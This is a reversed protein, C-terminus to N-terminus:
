KLLMIKQIAATGESKLQVLYIGSALDVADWTLQYSGSGRWGKELTQVKRGTIDFVALEVQGAHVLTWSLTTTPNFPNPYAPKLEFTAPRVYDDKIATADQIDDDYAVLMQFADSYVGGVGMFLWTTGVTLGTVDVGTSEWIRILTTDTNDAIEINQGGGASWTDVITGTLEMFTGEYEEWSNAQAATLGLAAPLENGTSLVQYSFDEMEWSSNYYELSGVAKIEDGRNLDFEEYHFLIMGRGSADQIYAKTVGPQLLDGGMTIIGEVTVVQGAAANSRVDAISTATPAAVAVNQVGSYVTDNESSVAQIRYQLLTNAAQAGIVGVWSNGTDLGMPSVNLLTGDTGYLINVESITQTDSGPIVDTMVIIEDLSTVFEPSHTTNEFSPNDTVFDSLLRPLIQYDANYQTVIGIVDAPWTPESSGDIETEKDIRMIGSSTGDTITLNANSGSSPWADGTRENSVSNIRILEGEYSEGNSNLDAVSILQPELTNGSTGKVIDDATGPIIEMKGAYEDITGSVTIEDGINLDVVEGSLYLDIGATADEFTYESGSGSFNVSNVIGTVTVPTGTSQARAEAITMTESVLVSVQVDDTDTDGDDDTVTLTFVWSTSETVSPAVFSASESSANSITVAPGSTLEWLYSTITGDIDTSGSGDLIVTDGSKVYQNDGADANPAYNDVPTFSQNTNLAGPSFATFEWPSGDLGMRSISSDMSAFETGGMEMANGDNDDMSGEYSVADVISGGIKLVVADPSGNQIINTTPWGGPTLDVNTVTAAGVVFFGYGGSEDTLTINGLDATQYTGGDNGNILEVTVSNYSGAPGAIELYEWSDTSPQDYDIENIFLQGFISTTLLTSLVLVKIARM